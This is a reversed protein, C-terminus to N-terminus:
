FIGFWFAAILALILLGISVGSVFAKVPPPASATAHPRRDSPTEEKISKETLAVRSELKQFKAELKSVSTAMVEVEKVRAEMNDLKGIFSKIKERLDEDRGIAIEM